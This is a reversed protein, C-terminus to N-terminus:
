VVACGVVCGGCGSWVFGGGCEVGDVRAAVGVGAGTTSYPGFVVGNWARVRVLYDDASVGSVSVSSLVSTKLFVWSVGGDLSTQVRYNVIPSGGDSLPVDWSVDVVGPGSSGAVVNSVTLAPPLVSVPVPTSYPGFVVGNWARVRVLYDDASVGSVSVSSLVSTRLFVWSVGGDLSTQVRYNVIPSGGDSLPVDWSVDVVGPGSSGAVVNSVTLAPPLVSVPVPTSYPGFM